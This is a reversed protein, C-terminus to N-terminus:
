GWQRKKAVPLGALDRYLAELPVITEDIAGLVQDVHQPIASLRDEVSGGSLRHELESSRCM